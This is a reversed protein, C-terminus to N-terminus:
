QLAAARTCGPAGCRFSTNARRAHITPASLRGRVIAMPRWSADATSDFAKSASSRMMPLSGRRQPPPPVPAAAPTEEGNASDSTLQSRLFFSFLETPHGFAASTISQAMRVAPAAAVAGSLAARHDTEAQQQLAGALM